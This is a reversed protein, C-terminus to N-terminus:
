YGKVNRKLFDRGVGTKFYKERAMAEVRTEFLETYILKWPGKNRTFKGLTGTNHELLRKELSETQGTYHIGSSTSKIIYVCYKM